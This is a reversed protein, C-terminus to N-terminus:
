CCWIKANWAFTQGLYGFNMVYRMKNLSFLVNKSFINTIELTLNFYFDSGTPNRFVKQTINPNWLNLLTITPVTPPSRGFSSAQYRKDLLKNTKQSYIFYLIKTCHGSKHMFNDAKQLPKDHNFRWYYKWNLGRMCGIGLM